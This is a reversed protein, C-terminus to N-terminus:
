PRLGCWSAGVRPGARRRRGPGAHGLSRGLAGARPVPLRVVVPVLTTTATSHASSPSRRRRQLHPAGGGAVGQGRDPRVVQHLDQVPQLTPLVVEGGLDAVKVPCGPGAAGRRHSTRRPAPRPAAAPRSARPMRVPVTAAAPGPTRIVTASGSFPRDRGSTSSSAMCSSRLAPASAKWTLSTRIPMSDANVPAAPAILTSPVGARARRVDDQGDAVTRRKDAAIDMGPPTTSVTRRAPPVSRRDLLGVVNSMSTNRGECAGSRREGRRIVPRCGLGPTWRGGAM